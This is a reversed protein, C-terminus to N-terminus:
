YNKLIDKAQEKACQKKSTKRWSKPIIYNILGLINFGGGQATGLLQADTKSVLPKKLFEPLEKSKGKGFVVVEKLSSLKSILFITDGTESINLLRSEYNLHTLVLSKSDEPVCVMGMSDTTEVGAKSRVSVDSIPSLTEIDAVVFCKQASLPLAFLVLITLIYYEKMVAFTTMIITTHM